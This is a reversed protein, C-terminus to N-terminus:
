GSADECDIFPEPCRKGRRPPGNRGRVNM